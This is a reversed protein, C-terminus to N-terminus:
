VFRLEEKVQVFKRWDFELLGGSGEVVDVRSLFHEHVLQARKGLPMVRWDHNLVLIRLSRQLAVLKGRGGSIRVIVVEDLSALYDPIRNVTVDAVM